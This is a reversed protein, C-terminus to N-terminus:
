KQNESITDLGPILFIGSENEVCILRCLEARRVASSPRERDDRVRPSIRHVRSRSQRVCGSRVTFDHPEPAATSASLQAPNIEQTAVSAFSGNEPSLVFYATFGNRLSPRFAGAARYARTCNQKACIARSVAPAALVRDERRGRKYSPLFNCVEPAITGRSRSVIDVTMALAAFCDVEGRAASHIAERLRSMRRRKAGVPHSAHM